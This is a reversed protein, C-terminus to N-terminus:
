IKKREQLRNHIGVAYSILLPGILIASIVTLGVLVGYAEDHPTRESLGGMINFVVKHLNLVTLASIILCIPMLTITLIQGFGLQTFCNLFYFLLSLRWAAVILLFWVNMENATKLSFFREVPIAYFIAPFSTLSFFTLITFYNWNDVFYPKVILWIFASLVFIYVVSGLGLHQVLSADASDWYRGIGVIWTGVLGAIFHKRNFQLLDMRNLKFTLLKSITEFLKM